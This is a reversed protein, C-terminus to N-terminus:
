KHCPYNCPPVAKGQWYQFGPGAHAQSVFLGLAAILLAALGITKYPTKM